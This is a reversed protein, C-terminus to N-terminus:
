TRRKLGSADMRDETRRMWDKLLATLEDRKLEQSPQRALNDMELPDRGLNYLHTVEINGDVVLKDLGRVITRWQDKSGLRGEIFISEQGAVAANVIATSLDKGQVGPPISVGCLSLLSPMLDVSSILLDDRKTGTKLLGPKLLPPYRILLPVRVAEEYPVDKDELGHSGLMDGHGSTFVVITDDALDAKDLADLLRGVNEDIASCLAYYDDYAQRVRAEIEDPVNGRLHISRPDYLKATHPPPTRPPQPPGWSVFLCFPNQKNQELFEIALSTQYDPEFGGARIPDPPDRFYISDFYRNGRNFAAWYDFGRRRPGPPVYGPTEAGDLNWKGIYGTRYGAQHFQAAISPQDPPLPVDDRTVGSSHPFRGTILAARSPSCLPYCTYARQFQIGERALRELNPAQLDKLGDAALAQARWQDALLFLLNPSRAPTARLGSAAIATTKM